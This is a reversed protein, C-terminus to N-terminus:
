SWEEFDEDDFVDDMLPQDDENQRMREFSEEWGERPKTKPKLVIYDEEMVLEVKDQINYRELVDKSLRVGRSNGIKIVKLEM